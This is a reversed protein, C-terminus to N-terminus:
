RTPREPEARVLRALPKGDQLVYAARVETGEHLGEPPLQRGAQVACTSEDARLSLPGTGPVDITLLGDSSFSLTGSVVQTREPEMLAKACAQHDGGVRGSGGPRGSGGVAEGEPVEQWREFFWPELGLERTVRSYLQRRQAAAQRAEGKGAWRGTEAEAGGGASAAVPAEENPPKQAAARKHECAVAGTGLLLCGVVIWERM